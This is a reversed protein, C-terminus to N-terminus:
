GPNRVTRSRPANLQRKAPIPPAIALTTPRDQARRTLHAVAGGAPQRLGPRLCRCVTLRQGAGGVGQASDGAGPRRDQAGQAPDHRVPRAGVRLGRTRSPAPGGAAPLRGLFLVAPDPQGAEDSRACYLDEYLARADYETAPLSTVVFCGALQRLIGTRWEVERLLLGGGDSTLCGGDFGRVAAAALGALSPQDAALPDAVAPDADLGLGRRDLLRALRAAVKEVVRRIEDDDPPPLPRFRMGPLGHDEFVGDLVLTHFHINLSLAGNFRQIFNVAGCRLRRGPACRRARRRESAFVELIFERLVSGLLPADFALTLVWQRVPVEPLVRDVLRAATDAM